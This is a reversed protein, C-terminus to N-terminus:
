ALPRTPRNPVQPQPPIQCCNFLVGPHIQGACLQGGFAQYSIYVCPQQATRAQLRLARCLQQAILHKFLRRTVAPVYVPGIGSLFNSISKGSRSLASLRVPSLPATLPQPMQCPIGQPRHRRSPCPVCRRCDTRPPRRCSVCVPGCPSGRGPFLRSRCTRCTLHAAPSLRRTSAASYGNLTFRWVSHPHEAAAAVSFGSQSGGNDFPQGKLAPRLTYVCLLKVPSVRFFYVAHGGTNRSHLILCLLPVIRVRVPGGM